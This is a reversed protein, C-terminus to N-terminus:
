VASLSVVVQLAVLKDLLGQSPGLQWLHPLIAQAGSTVLGQSM